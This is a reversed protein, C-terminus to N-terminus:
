RIRMLYFFDEGVEIMHDENGGMRLAELGFEGMHKRALEWAGLEWLSLGLEYHMRPSFSNIDNVFASLKAFDLHTQKERRVHVHLTPTKPESESESESFVEEMWHPELSFSSLLYDLLWHYSSSIEGGEKEREDEIWWKENEKEREKEKEVENREFMELARGLYHRGMSLDGVIVYLSGLGQMSELSEPGYYLSNKFHNLASKYDGQRIKLAGLAFYASRPGSSSPAISIAENYSLEAQRATGHRATGHRATGHRASPTHQTLLIKGEEQGM